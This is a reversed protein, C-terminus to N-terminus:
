VIVAVAGSVPVIEAFVALMAGGAPTVSGVGPFSLLVVAVIVTIGVASKDATLVIVLVVGTAGPPTTVYSTTILLAPGAAASPAIKESVTGTSNVPTEKLQPLAVPPATQPGPVFGDVIGVNGLV